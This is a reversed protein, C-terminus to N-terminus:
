HKVKDNEIESFDEKEVIKAIETQFLGWLVEGGDQPTAVVTPSNIADLIGDVRATLKDLQKVLEAVIVLGGNKGGNLTIEGEAMELTADGSILEVKEIESCVLVVHDAASIRGVLVVSGEVPTVVLGASGNIDASLRVNELKADDPMGVPIVTCTRGDVTDITAPFIHQRNLLEDTGAMARILKALENM